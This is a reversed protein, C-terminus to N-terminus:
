PVDKKKYVIFLIVFSLKGVLVTDFNTVDAAGTVSYM